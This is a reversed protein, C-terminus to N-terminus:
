GSFRNVKGGYGPALDPEDGSNELVSNVFIGSQNEGAV